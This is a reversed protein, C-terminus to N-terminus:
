VQLIIKETCKLKLVVCESPRNMEEMECVYYVCVCVCETQEHIQTHEMLTGYNKIHRLRWQQQQQQLVITCYRLATGKLM